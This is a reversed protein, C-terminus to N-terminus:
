WLLGSVDRCRHRSPNSVRPSRTLSRNGMLLIFHIWSIVELDVREFVTSRTLSRHM